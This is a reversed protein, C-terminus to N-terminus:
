SDLTFFRIYPQGNHDCQEIRGKGESALKTFVEEIFSKDFPRNLYQDADGCKKIKASATCNNLADSPTIGKEGMQEARKLIDSELQAILNWFGEKEKDEPSKELNQIIKQGASSLPKNKPTCDITKLAPFLSLIYEPQMWKELKIPISLPNGRDDKSLGTITGKLAPYLDGIEDRYAHLHIEILGNIQMTKVGGKGGGLAGLTNGHSLLIPYEEVKRVDSLVSKLFQGSLHPDCNEEYKTIEDWISTTPRDNTKLRQYYASLARDIEAYDFESGVVEFCKLWHNLHAHPDSVIV